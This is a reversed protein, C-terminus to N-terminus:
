AEFFPVDIVVVVDESLLEFAVGCVHLTKIEALAITFVRAVPEESTLHSYVPHGLRVSEELEDFGRTVLGTTDDRKM